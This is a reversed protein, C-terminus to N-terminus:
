RASVTAGPPRAALEAVWTLLVRAPFSPRAQWPAPVLEALEGPRYSRRISRLGDVHIFSRRGFPRSAVAYATYALRGRAIDSHLVLRRALRESDSLLRRLEDADLHHLVHNSVVLDFQAGERVLERSTARRFVVGAEPPLATAYQHAREDPDIATIALRLGDRAARRALDRAVDGGGSGVDLLTTERHPSLMPRIRRRYLWPWGAVVRNVYRFQGYTRRLQDLDCSPDDMLEKLRTDRRRLAPTVLRHM